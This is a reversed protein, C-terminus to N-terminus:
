HIIPNQGESTATAPSTGPLYKELAKAAEPLESEVWADASQEAIQLAATVNGEMLDVAGQVFKPAPQYRRLRARWRMHYMCDHALNIATENSRTDANSGTIPQPEYYFEAKAIGVDADLPPTGLLGPGRGGLSKAVTIPKAFKDKPDFAGVATSWVAMFPSGMTAKPYLMKPGSMAQTSNGGGDGDSEGDEEGGGEKGGSDEAGESDEAGGGEGGGKSSKAATEMAEAEKLCASLHGKDALVTALYTAHAADIAAQEIKRATPGGGSIAYAQEANTKAAQYADFADDKGTTYKNHCTKAAQAASPAGDKSAAGDALGQAEDQSGGSGNENCFLAGAAAIGKGVTNAIGAKASGPIFPIAGLVFSVVDQGAYNCLDQYTDDTVPLGYRQSTSGTIAGVIGYAGEALDVPNGGSVFPIQSYAFTTVGIVKPAYYNGVISSKGSAIWPWVVAVASELYHLIPLIIEVADGVGEVVDELPDELPTMIDCVPDFFAGILCALANVAMYIVQILKAAVLIALVAAMVLNLMALVNMGRADYVAGGFASSDAANQLTERYNVANSVGLIYWCAGILCMCFFAAVILIVGRDDALLGQRPTDRETSM